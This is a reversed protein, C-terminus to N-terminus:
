FLNPQMEDRFQERAATEMQTVVQRLAEIRSKLSATFQLVDEYGQALRYGGGADAVILEGRERLLAVAARAIRDSTGVQKALEESFIVRQPWSKIVYLVQAAVDAAREDMGAM